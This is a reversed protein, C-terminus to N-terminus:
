ADPLKASADATPVALDSNAFPKIKIRVCIQRFAVRFSCQRASALLSACGQLMQYAISNDAADGDCRRRADIHGILMQHPKSHEYSDQAPPLAQVPVGISLPCLRGYFQGALFTAPARRV